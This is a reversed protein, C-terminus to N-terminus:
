LFDSLTPHTTNLTHCVSTGRAQSRLIRGAFEFIKRYSSKTCNKSEGKLSSCVGAYHIEGSPTNIGRGLFENLQLFSRESSSDLFQAFDLILFFFFLGIERSM